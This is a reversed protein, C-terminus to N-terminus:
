QHPDLNFVAKDRKREFGVSQYFPSDHQPKPTQIVIRNVKDAKADQKIQDILNQAIRVQDQEYKKDVILEHVYYNWPTREAEIFGAPKGDQYAIYQRSFSDVKAQLFPKVLAPNYAQKPADLGSLMRNYLTVFDNFQPTNASEIKNISIDRNPTNGFHISKTVSLPNFM